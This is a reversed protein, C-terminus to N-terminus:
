IKQVLFSERTMPSLFKRTVHSEGIISALRM